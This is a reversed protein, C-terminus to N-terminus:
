NQIQGEELSSESESAEEEVVDDETPAAPWGSFPQPDLILMREEGEATLVELVFKEVLDKSGVVIQISLLCVTAVELLSPTDAETCWRISHFFSSVDWSQGTDTRLIRALVVDTFGHVGSEEQVSWENHEPHFRLRQFLMKEPRYVFYTQEGVLQLTNLTAREKRVSNKIVWPAGNRETFLWLDERHADVIANWSKQAAGTVYVWFRSVANVAVLTYYVSNTAIWAGFADLQAEM